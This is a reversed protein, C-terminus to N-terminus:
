RVLTFISTVWRWKKPDGKCGLVVVKSDFVCKSNSPGYPSHDIETFTSVIICSTKLLNKLNIKPHSKTKPRAILPIQLSIFKRM